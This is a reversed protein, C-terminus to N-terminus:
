RPEKTKRHAARQSFCVYRSAPINRLGRLDDLRITALSGVFARRSLVSIRARQRPAPANLRGSRRHPPHASVAARPKAAHNAGVPLVPTTDTPEIRFARLLTSLVITAETVALSAGVCVRPGAGFPLYAFRSIAAQKDLFRDPAFV